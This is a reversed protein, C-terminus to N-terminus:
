KVGAKKLEAPTMAYKVQETLDAILKDDEPTGAETTIIGQDYLSGAVEEAIDKPVLKTGDAKFLRIMEEIHEGYM